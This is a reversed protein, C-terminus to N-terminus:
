FDQKELIVLCTPLIKLHAMSSGTYATSSPMSCSHVVIYGDKLYRELRYVDEVDDHVIMPIQKKM